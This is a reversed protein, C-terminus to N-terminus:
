ISRSISEFYLFCFKVSLLCVFTEFVCDVKHIKDLFCEKCLDLDYMSLLIAFFEEVDLQLETLQNQLSEVETPIMQFTFINQLLYFCHNRTQLFRYYHLM